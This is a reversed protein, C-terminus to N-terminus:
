APDNSNLKQKAIELETKESVSLYNNEVVTKGVQAGAIASATGDGSVGGAIGAALTALASITQKETEDLKDLDKDYL